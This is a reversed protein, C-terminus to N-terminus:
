IGPGKGLYDRFKFELTTAIRSNTEKGLRSGSIAIILISLVLIAVISIALSRSRFANLSNM